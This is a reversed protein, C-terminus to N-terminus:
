TPQTKINQATQIFSIKCSMLRLKRKITVRLLILWDTRAIFISTAAGVNNKNETWFGYSVLARSASGPRYRVSSRVMFDNGMKRPPLSSAFFSFLDTRIVAHGAYHGSILCHTRNFSKQMGEPDEKGM